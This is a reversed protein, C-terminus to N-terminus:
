QLQGVEWATFTGNIKISWTPSHTGHFKSISYVYGNNDCSVLSICYVSNFAHRGEISRGVRNPYWVGAGEIFVVLSKGRAYEIGRRVKHEIAGVVRNEGLLPEGRTPVDLASVHEVREWEGTDKNVILGDGGDDEAFTYNKKDVACFVACLLWNAWAERQRLTFNKIDRGVRLCSPNKVWYEMDKLAVKLDKIQKRETSM